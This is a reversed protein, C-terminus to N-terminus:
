RRRGGKKSRQFGFPNQGAPAESTGAPKGFVAAPPLGGPAAAPPLGGSAAPSVAGFAPFPSIPPPPPIPSASVPTASIPSVSIPPTSIPPLAHPSSPCVSTPPPPQQFAASPKNIVEAEEAVQTRRRREEEQAQKSKEEQKIELRRKMEQSKKVEEMNRQHQEMEAQKRREEEKVREKVIAQSRQLSLPEPVNWNYRVEPEKGEAPAAMYTRHCHLGRFIEEAARHNCVASPPAARSSLMARIMRLDASRRNEAAERLRSVLDEEGINDCCVPATSVPLGATTWRQAPQAGESTVVARKKWPQEQEGSGGQELEPVVEWERQRKRREGVKYRDLERAYPPLKEDALAAPPPPLFAKWDSM